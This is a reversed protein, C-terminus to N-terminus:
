EIDFLIPRLVDRARQIEDRIHRLDDHHWVDFEERFCEDALVEGIREFSLKVSSRFTEPNQHTGLIFVRDRLEEPIKELQEAIRHEHNDCDIIGVVTTNKNSRLKPLYEDIISEVVPAWGGAPKMVQLARVSLRDDLEFGNAIQRDADDEPIIYIHPKYKNVAM